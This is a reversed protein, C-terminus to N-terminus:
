LTNFSGEGLAISIPISSYITILRHHYILHKDLNNPFELVLCLTLKLFNLIREFVYDLQKLGMM